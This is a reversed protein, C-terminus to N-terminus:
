YKRVINFTLTITNNEWHTSVTTNDTVLTHSKPGQCAVREELYQFLYVPDQCTLAGGSTSYPLDLGSDKIVEEYRICVHDELDRSMLLPKSQRAVIKIIEDVTEPNTWHRTVGREIYRLLHQRHVIRSNSM